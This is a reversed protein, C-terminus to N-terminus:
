WYHRREGRYFAITRALGSMLDVKPSWGTVARFATDDAWFDGIDIRLREPPFPALRYTGQAASNIVAEALLRLSTAEGGINFIPVEPSAMDGAMMLADIADDVYTLDRIQEGDGFVCIENGEIALRVWLGLFTQRADRVRMRPGYTNTLRLVIGAAGYVKGYVRLYGEAALKHVANIDPAALPHSEDVPLTRPTGYVQRTSTFVVPAGPAHKRTAELLRLTGAANAHLDDLPRDMSAAHGVQAALHFIGGAGALAKQWGAEGALDAEIIEVGNGLEELNRRNAGSGDVMADMVVVEDGRELLRRVLNSGIFGAGGTVVMRRGKGAGCTM